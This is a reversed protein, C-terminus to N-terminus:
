YGQGPVDTLHEVSGRTETFTVAVYDV